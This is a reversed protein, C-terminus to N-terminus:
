YSYRQRATSGSATHVLHRIRRRTFTSASSKADCKTILEPEQSVLCYIVNASTVLTALIQTGAVRLHAGTRTWTSTYFRREIDTYVGPLLPLPCDGGYFVFCKEPIKEM